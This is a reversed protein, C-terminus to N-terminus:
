KGRLIRNAYVDDCVEQHLGALCGHAVAQYLPQLGALTDPQHETTRTLHEYLRRNAAQWAVRQEQRLRGGFYERVLPHADLAISAGSARDRKVLGIEELRAVAATWQRDDLSVLPETLGEIM